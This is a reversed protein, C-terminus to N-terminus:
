AAAPTSNESSTETNSLSPSLNAISSDGSISPETESVSDTIPLPGSLLTMLKRHEAEALQKAAELFKPELDTKKEKGQTMAETLAALLESTTEVGMPTIFRFKTLSLDVPPNGECDHMLFWAIELLADEGNEALIQKMELTAFRQRMLVHVGRTARLVREVGDATTITVPHVAQM